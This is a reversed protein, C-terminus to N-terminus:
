RLLSALYKGTYSGRVKTIREPTGEAVV